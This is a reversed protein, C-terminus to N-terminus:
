NLVIRVYLNLSPKFGQSVENMVPSITNVMVSSSYSTAIRIIISLFVPPFFDLILHSNAEFKINDIEFAKYPKPEVRKVRLSWNCPCSLSVFHRTGSTTELALFLASFFRFISEFGLYLRSWIYFTIFFINCVISWNM